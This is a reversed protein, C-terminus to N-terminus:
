SHGLPGHRSQTRDDATGHDFIIGAPAKPLRIEFAAGPSQKRNRASVTGGHRSVTRQVMALGLGSSGRTEGGQPAPRDAQSWAQFISALFAPAIGPGEDEIELTWDSGGDSVRVTVTSDPATHRIANEILNLAARRIMGADCVVMAAECLGAQTLRVGRKRARDWSLDVIETALDALDHAEREIPKSGARAFALFEDTLELARHAHRRLTAPDIPDTEGQANAMALISVQPSRLDHSLFSIAEEREREAARLATFDVLQLLLRQGSDAPAEAATATTAATAGGGNAAGVAAAGAANAGAAAAGASAPAAPGGDARGTLNLGVLWNRRRDDLFEIGRAPTLDTAGPARPAPVPAHFTTEFWRTADGGVAPAQDGFADVMRQNRFLIRGTPEAILVPHPLSELGDLLFRNLLQVQTAADSLRGLERAIPEASRPEYATTALVTPMAELRRAHRLLGASAASLRRWSWLPYALVFAAMLGAPQLWHDYHFAVATIALLLAIAAVCIPLSYQPAARFLVVMLGIIAALSLLAHSWPHIPRILRDQSLAASVVAHLEVGSARNRDVILPTSFTDGVGVATTGILVRRGRLADAPVDGRLVAVASFAEATREIARPMLPQQSSWDGRSLMADAAARDGHVGPEVLALAMAPLYGERAFLGRVRGDAGHTMVVHGLRAHHALGAIPYLPLYSNAGFPERAVALIPRARDFAAALIEDHRPNVAPEAFVIDIGLARPAMAAVQSVLEAVIPREWPWRGIQAISDDDIAVIVIDPDRPLASTRLFLDYLALDLRAVVGQSEVQGSPDPQELYQQTISPLGNGLPGNWLALIGLLIVLVLWERQARYWFRRRVLSATAPSSSDPSSSEPRPPDPVRAVM